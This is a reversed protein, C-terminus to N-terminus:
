LPFPILLFELELELPSEGRLNKGERYCQDSRAVRLHAPSYSAPRTPWSSRRCAPPHTPIECPAFQSAKVFSGQSSGTVVSFMVWGARRPCRAPEGERGM